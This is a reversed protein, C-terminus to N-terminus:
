NNFYIDNESNDDGTYVYTPGYTAGSVYLLGREVESTAGSLDLNTQGTMQYAYYNWEGVTLSVTAATFNQTGGTEIINFKNFRDTNVSIDEGTFLVTQKTDKSVLKFLYYPSEITTKEKFTFYRTNISDKNILIM